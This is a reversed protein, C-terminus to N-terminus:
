LEPLEKALAEITWRENREITSTMTWGKFLRIQGGQVYYV